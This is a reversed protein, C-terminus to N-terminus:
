EGLRRDVARRRVEIAEGTHLQTRPFRSCDQKVWLPVYSSMGNKWSGFWLVILVDLLLTLPDM